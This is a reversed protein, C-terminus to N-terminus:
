TISKSNKEPVKKNEITGPKKTEEKKDGAVQKKEGTAKKETDQKKDKVEAKKSYGDKYWGDGKLTFATQSILKTLRGACAPCKRKPGESIKQFVELNKGCKQCNYEYYPM